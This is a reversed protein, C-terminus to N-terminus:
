YKLFKRVLFNDPEQFYIIYLGNPLGNLDIFKSNNSSDNIILEGTVSYIKLNFNKNKINYLYIGTTYIIIDNEINGNEKVDSVQPEKVLHLGAVADLDFGSIIPDYYPHKPNDLIMQCIDTIKIFKIKTLHLDALDFKDGGSEDPNFPDKNGYTPTVGACGKLTLSDFPFDFFKIGDESVSIKGPEAFIKNTVPNLFPNEFITFDPGPRDVVEFGKFGVVIEGGLGLSCVQNPANSPVQGNAASDPPGFINNPFYATDQGANQGTGWKHSYVTDIFGHTLQSFALSINILYIILIFKKM